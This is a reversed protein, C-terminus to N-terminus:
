ENHFWLVGIIFRLKLELGKAPVDEWIHAVEAVEQGVQENERWYPKSSLRSSVGRDLGLIRSGM